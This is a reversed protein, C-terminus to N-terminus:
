QEVERLRIAETVVRQLVREASRLADYLEGMDEVRVDGNFALQVSVVPHPEPRQELYPAQTLFAELIGGARVTVSRHSTDTYRQPLEGEHGRCWGPEPVVVLGRDLTALTVTRASM